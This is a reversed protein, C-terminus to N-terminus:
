QQDTTASAMETYVPEIRLPIPKINLLENSALLGNTEAAFLTQGDEQVVDAVITNTSTTMDNTVDTNVDPISNNMLIPILHCQM